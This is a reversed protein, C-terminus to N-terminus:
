LMRALPRRLVIIIFVVPPLYAVPLLFLGLGPMSQALMALPLLWLLNLLVFGTSVARHSFGQRVLRQYAHDRHSSLLNEGRLARHGLTILADSLFAAWLILWVVASMEGRAIGLVAAAALLFGLPQSGTDGMFVRAPPWNFCLFGAAAAALALLVLVSDGAGHGSSSLCVIAGLAMFIAQSAAIGDIGDMFNFFNGLAVVCVVALGALWFGWQTVLECFLVLTLAALGQALLRPLVPLAHRDDAAGLIALALALAVAVLWDAGLVGGILPLALAACMGALLAAGAGTPTPVSHSSRSGPIDIRNSRLAFRRYCRTAWFSLAFALLGTAPLM